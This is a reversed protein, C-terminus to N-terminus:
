ASDNTLFSIRFYLTWFGDSWLGEPNDIPMGPTFSLRPVMGGSYNVAARTGKVDMPNAGSSGLWGHFLDTAPSAPRATTSPGQATILGKIVPDPPGPPPPEGTDNEVMTIDFIWNNPTANGGGEIDPTWWRAEWWLLIRELRQPAVFVIGLTTETEGGPLATQLDSFYSETFWSFAVDM